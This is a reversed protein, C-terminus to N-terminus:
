NLAEKKIEDFTKYKNVYITAIGHIKLEDLSIYSDVKNVKVYVKCLKNERKGTKIDKNRIYAEGKSNINFVKYFKGECFAYLKEDFEHGDKYKQVDLMQLRNKKELMRIYQEKQKAKNRQKLIKFILLM